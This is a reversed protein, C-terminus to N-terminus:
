CPDRRPRCRSPVQRRTISLGSIVLFPSVPSGYVIPMRGVNNKLDVWLWENAFRDFIERLLVSTRASPEAKPRVAYLDHM